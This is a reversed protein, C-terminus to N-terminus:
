CRWQFIFTCYLVKRPQTKQKM